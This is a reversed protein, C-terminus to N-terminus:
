SQNEEYHFPACICEWSKNHCGPCVQEGYEYMSKYFLAETECNDINHGINKANCFPCPENLYEALKLFIKHLKKKM